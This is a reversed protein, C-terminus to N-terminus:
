IKLEKAIAEVMKEQLFDRLSKDIITFVANAKEQDGLIAKLKCLFIEKLSKRRRCIVKRRRKMAVIDDEEIKICIKKFLFKNIEAKLRVHYFSYNNSRNIDKEITDIFFQIKDVLPKIMNIDLKNEGFDTMEQLKSQLIDFVKLAHQRTEAELAEAFTPIDFSNEKRDEKEDKKEDEKEDKKGSNWTLVGSIYAFGSSILDAGKEAFTRKQKESDKLMQEFDAKKKRVLESDLMVLKKMTDLITEQDKGEANMEFIHLDRLNPSNYIENLVKSDLLRETMKQGQCITSLIEFTNTICQDPTKKSEQLKKKLEVQVKKFEESFEKTIAEIADGQPLTKNKSQKEFERLKALIWHNLRNIHDGITEKAKLANSKYKWDEIGQERISMIRRELMKKHEEKIDKTSCMHPVLIVKLKSIKSWMVASQQMRRLLDFLTKLKKKITIPETNGKENNEIFKNTITNVIKLLENRDNIEKISGLKLVDNYRSVAEWVNRTEKLFHGLNIYSKVGPTLAEGFIKNRLNECKSRFAANVVCFSFLKGDNDVHDDKHYASYMLEFSDADRYDIIERFEVKSLAAVEKLENGIKDIMERQKVKDDDIMNRLVFVIIPKKNMCVKLEKAAFLSMSIIRKMSENMEGNVNIIMVQSLAMALITMQKDFKGDTREISLLGESDLILCEQAFLEKKDHEGHISGFLRNLANYNIQSNNGDILEFEGGQKVYELYGDFFKDVDFSDKNEFKDLNEYVHI